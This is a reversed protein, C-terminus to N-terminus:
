TYSQQYEGVPLNTGARDAFEGYLSRDVSKQLHEIRAGVAFPKAELTVGNKLLMEFTDRASHGVALILSNVPIEEGNVVVGAVSGSRIIIDEVKSGFRVEGGLLTIRERLRRVVERLRDTGIHPHASFLIEEPAGFEYFRESVYRCLPDKIRAALTGDSFTGAGGEGFQVNSVPSFEGGGLFKEVAEARSDIDGGREFVVPRAGAEALVLAAFMGAPGFGAVATKGIIESPAPTIEFRPTDDLTIFDRGGSQKKCLQREKEPSTLEARVSSVTHINDRKRADLSSKHIGARAVDRRNLGAKKLAREIIEENSVGVPATINRIIVAM